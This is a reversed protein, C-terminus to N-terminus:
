EENETPQVQGRGAAIAQRRVLAPAETAAIATPPPAPAALLSATPPVVPAAGDPVAEVHSDIPLM